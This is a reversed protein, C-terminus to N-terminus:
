SAYYRLMLIVNEMDMETTVAQIHRMADWSVIPCKDDVPRKFTYMDWAWFDSANAPNAAFIIRDDESAFAKFMAEVWPANENERVWVLDGSEPVSKDVDFMELLMSLDEKDLTELFEQLRNKSEANM